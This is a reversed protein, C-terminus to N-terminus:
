GAKKPNVELTPAWAPKRQMRYSAAMCAPDAGVGAQKQNVQFAHAGMYAVLCLVSLPNSVIYSKAHM